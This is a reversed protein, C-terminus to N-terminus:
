YADGVVEKWAKEWEKDFKDMQYSQDVLGVYNRRCRLYDDTVVVDLVVSVGYHGDGGNWHTKVGM